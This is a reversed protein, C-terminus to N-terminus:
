ALRANKRLLLHLFLGSGVLGLMTGIPIEYPYNVIRGAIDCALVLGAGLLAVWPVARRVNDGLTLSVLNPVVLGLFPIMGVTVVIVSTVISVIVLGLSVV